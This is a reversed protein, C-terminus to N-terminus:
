ENGKYPIVCRFGVTNTGRADVQRAKKFAAQEFPDAFSGGRIGMTTSKPGTSGTARRVSAVIESVNGVIDYLLWANQDRPYSAAKAAYPESDGSNSAGGQSRLNAMGAEFLPPHIDVAQNARAAYEWECDTPLRGVSDVRSCYLEADELSVNVVPLNGNSWGRNFAPAARLRGSRNRYADVTVEIQTMWFGGVVDM